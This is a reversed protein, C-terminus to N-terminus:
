ALANKVPNAYINLFINMLEQFDGEIKQLGATAYEIFKQQEEKTYFSQHANTQYLLDYAIYNTGFLRYNKYIKKDIIESLHRFKDNREALENCSNLEELTISDCISLHIKGKWQIIGQYISEFDEDETKVYEQQKSIYIERTRMFDCSEYEYSIALPTINMEHLNEVFDKDSGATIMKLVATDTHDNGDKSRGNRQSIWISTNQQTLLYRMFHSTHQLTRLLERSKGSREVQFMKNLRVIDIFPYKMLNSGIAIASTDLHHQVLLLQLIGSDLVIDRHNAIFLHPKQSHLNEFGSYTLSSSTAQIHNQMMKSMIKIQFEKVTKIPLLKEAIISPEVDPFAFRVADSFYDSHIIKQLTQPVEIDRYPRIDEFEINEM